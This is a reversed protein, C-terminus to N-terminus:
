TEYIYNHLEFEDLIDLAEDIYDGLTSLDHADSGM